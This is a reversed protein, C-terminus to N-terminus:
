KVVDLWEKECKKKWDVPFNKKNLSEKPIYEFIEKNWKGNNKYYYFPSNNPKYIKDGISVNEIRNLFILTDIQPELRIVAHTILNQRLAVKKIVTGKFGNKINNLLLDNLPNSALYNLFYIFGFFVFIILLTLGSRNNLFTKEM